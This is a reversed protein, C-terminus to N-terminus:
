KTYNVEASENGHKWIIIFDIDTRVLFGVEKSTPNKIQKM